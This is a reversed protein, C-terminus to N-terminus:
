KLRKMQLLLLLLLLLVGKVCMRPELRPEVFPLGRPGRSDQPLDHPLNSNRNRDIHNMRLIHATEQPETRNCFLLVQVAFTHFPRSRRHHPLATTM